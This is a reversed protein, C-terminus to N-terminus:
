NGRIVILKVLLVPYHHVKAMDLWMIDELGEKGIKKLMEMINRGLGSGMGKECIKAIRLILPLGINVGNYAVPTPYPIFCKRLIRGTFYIYAGLDIVGKILSPRTAFVVRKLFRPKFSKDTDIILINVYKGLKRFIEARISNLIAPDRLPLSVYKYPLNTTDIGAESVPKLFHKIGGYRLSLKKHASIINLQVSSLIQITERNRFVFKLLNLWLIRVIIFTFIKTLMDAQILGEDYINGLATSLAKEAIVIIDGNEIHKGYNDIIEKVVDTGPYWYNFKKRLIRIKIKVM